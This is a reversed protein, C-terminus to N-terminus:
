SDQRWRYDWGKRCAFKRVPRYDDCLRWGTPYARWNWWVEPIYVTYPDRGELMKDIATKITKEPAIEDVYYLYLERYLSHFIDLNKVSEFNYDPKDKEQAWLSASLPLLLMAM